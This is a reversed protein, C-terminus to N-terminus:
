QLHLPQLVSPKQPNSRSGDSADGHADILVYLMVTPLKLTGCGCFTCMARQHVRFM